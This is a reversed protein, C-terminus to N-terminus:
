KKTSELLKMIEPTLLKLFYGTKIKFTIRNQIKSIYIRILPNVTKKGHIKLIYEFYDRIDSISYSGDPEELEENWTPASIEFKINKFSKKINKRRYYITLNSLAIYKDKRKLDVRETLNFLQRQPDSTKSNRSNM